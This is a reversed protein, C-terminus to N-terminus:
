CRSHCRTSLNSLVHELAGLASKSREPDKCVEILATVGDGCGLNLLTQVCLIQTIHDKSEYFAHLIAPEVDDDRFKASLEVAAWRKLYDSAKLCKMVYKKVAEREVELLAACAETLAKTSDSLKGTSLENVLAATGDPGLLRLAACIERDIGLPKHYYSQDTCRLLGILQRISCIGRLRLREVLAPGDLEGDENLTRCVRIFLDTADSREIGELLAVIKTRLATTQKDKRRQEDLYKVRDQLGAFGRDDGLRLLGAAAGAALNPNELTLALPDVASPGLTLAEPIRDLLVWYLARQHDDSPEWGLALLVRAANSRRWWKAETMAKICNPVSLQGFAVLGNLAAQSVEADEEEGLADVLAAASRSDPVKCLARVAALRADRVGGRSPSSMTGHLMSLGKGDPMSALAAAAAERASYEVSGKPNRPDDPKHLLSALESIASLAGIQGLAECALVQVETSHDSLASVMAQISRSDTRGRLEMIAEIRHRKLPSRIKIKTLM